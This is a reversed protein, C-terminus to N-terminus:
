STDPSPDRLQPEVHKEMCSPCISHSFRADTHRSVYDEVTSWYNQDDRVKRCYSCIPLIEQLRKVEALATQLERMLREREAEAAKAETVDRAVGYIERGVLIPAANWRLWRFTGDKCLYRNEFGLARGGKRVAANQELTRARDDPHVFDIFPRSMLEQRTFGLSREWSVSLKKFHGSFDLCCLLDISVEFFREELASNTVVDERSHTEDAM